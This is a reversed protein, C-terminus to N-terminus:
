RRWREIMIEYLINGVKKATVTEGTSIDWLKAPKEHFSGSEKYQIVVKCKPDIKYTHDSISIADSGISNVIGNIYVHGDYFAVAMGSFLFICLFMAVVIRKM